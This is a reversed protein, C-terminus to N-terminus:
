ARVLGEGLEIFLAHNHDFAREAERVAAAREETSWPVADLAARYRAKYAGLPGLASFDLFSTATAEVGYHRRLARRMLQGGSLDGLYRTYHHVVWGAPWSGALERIRAVYRETSPLATVAAAGLAALDREIAATRRLLPDDLAAVVPDGGLAAGPAELEAYVHRLQALLAAYAGRDLQGSMLRSVFGASETRRHAAATGDRLQQAFTTSSPSTVTM